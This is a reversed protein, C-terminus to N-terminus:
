LVSTGPQRASSESRLRGAEISHILDQRIGHATSLLALKDESTAIAKPPFRTAHGSRDLGLRTLTSTIGVLLAAAINRLYQREAFVIAQLANNGKPTAELIVRRHIRRRRALGRRELRDALGVASHHRIGLRKAIDGISPQAGGPFTRLMLLLEYQRRTLGSARVAHGTARLIRTITYQIEAATECESTGCIEELKEIM